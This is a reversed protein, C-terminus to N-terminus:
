SFNPWTNKFGEKCLRLGRIEIRCEPHKKMYKVDEETFLIQHSLKANAKSLKVPELLTKIPVNYLDM